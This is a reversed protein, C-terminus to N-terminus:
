TCSSQDLAVYMRRSCIFIHIYMFVFPLAYAFFNRCIESPWIKYLFLLSFAFYYSIRECIQLIKSELIEKKVDTVNKRSSLNQKKAEAVEEWTVPQTAFRSGLDSCKVKLKRRAANNESIQTFFVNM